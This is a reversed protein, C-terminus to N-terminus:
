GGADFSGVGSNGAGRARKADPEQATLRRLASLQRMTGRAREELDQKETMWPGHEAIWAEQQQRVADRRAELEEELTARARDHYHRKATRAEELAKVGQCAEAISDRLKKVEVTQAPEMSQLVSQVARLREDEASRAREASQLQQAQQVEEARHAKKSAVLENALQDRRTTISAMEVRAQKEEAVLAKLSEAKSKVDEAQAVEDAAKAAADRLKNALQPARAEAARYKAENMRVKSEALRFQHLLKKKEAEREQLEQHAADLFSASSTARNGVSFRAEAARRSLDEAVLEFHQTEALFLERRAGATTARRQCALGLVAGALGSSADGRLAVACHELVAVPSSSLPDPCAAVDEVVSLASAVAETPHRPLRASAREPIKELLEGRLKSCTGRAEALSADDVAAAISESAAAMEAEADAGQAALAKADCRGSSAAVALSARCTDGWSGSSDNGLEFSDDVTYTAAIASGDCKSLFEEEGSVAGGSTPICLSSRRLNHARQLFELYRGESEARRKAMRGAGWPASTEVDLRELLSQLQCHGEALKARLEAAERRLPALAASGAKGLAGDGFGVALNAGSAKRWQAEDSLPAQREGAGDFLAREVLAATAAADAAGDVQCRTYVGARVADGLCGLLEDQAARKAKGGDGARALTSQLREERFVQQRLTDLSLTLNPVTAGWRRDRWVKPALQELATHVQKAVAETAHLSDQLESADRQSALLSATLEGIQRTGSSDDATAADVNATKTKISAPAAQRAGRLASSLRREETRVAQCAATCSLLARRLSLASWEAEATAEVSRHASGRHKVLDAERSVCEIAAEERARRLAAEAAECHEFAEASAATLARGKMAHQEAHTGVEERLAIVERGREVLERRLAFEEQAAATAESAAARTEARLAEDHRVVACLRLLLSQSSPEETDNGEIASFDAGSGSRERHSAAVATSAAFTAVGARPNAAATGSRQAGSADLSSFVIKLYPVLASKPVAVLPAVGGRSTSANGGSGALQRTSPPPSSLLCQRVPAAVDEVGEVDELLKELAQRPVPVDEAGATGSGSGADGSTFKVCARVEKYARKLDDQCRLM